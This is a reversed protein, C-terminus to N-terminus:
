QTPIHTAALSLMRVDIIFPSIPYFAETETFIDNLLAILPRVTADAIHSLPENFCRLLYFSNIEATVHTTERLSAKGVGLLNEQVILKM